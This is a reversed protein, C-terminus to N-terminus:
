VGAEKTEPTTRNLAALHQAMETLFAKSTPDAEKQLLLNGSEFITLIPKDKYGFHFPLFPPKCVRVISEFLIQAVEQPTTGESIVCRGDELLALLEEPPESQNFVKFLYNDINM